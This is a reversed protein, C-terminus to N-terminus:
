KLADMSKFFGMSCNNCLFRQPVPDSDAINACRTHQWVECVDCAIMREGDDDRAGCPCEVVWSDSGGEFRMEHMMVDGLPGHCGMIVDHNDIADVGNNIANVDDILSHLIDHGAPMTTNSTTTATMTNIYRGHVVVHSGSEINGFLLDDDDVGSLTPISELMFGRLVYYTDRFAREAERKLEGVTAHPPLVVLEPPPPARRRRAFRRRCLSGGNSSGIIANTPKIGIGIGPGTMISNNNTHSTISASDIAHITPTLNLVEFVEDFMLELKDLSEVKEEVLGCQIEHDDSGLEPKGRRFTRNSRGGSLIGCRLEEDGEMLSSIVGNVQSSKM